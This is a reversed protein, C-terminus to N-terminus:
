IAPYHGLHSPGSNTSSLALYGLIKKRINPIGIRMTGSVNLTVMSRNALTVYIPPVTRVNTLRFLYPTAHITAGSDIIDTTQMYSMKNISIVSTCANLSVWATFQPTQNGNPVPSADVMHVDATEPAARAANQSKPIPAAAAKKARTVSRITGLLRPKLRGSTVNIVCPTIRSGILILPQSRM